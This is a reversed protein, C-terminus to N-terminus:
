EGAGDIRQNTEASLYITRTQATLELQEPTLLEWFLNSSVFRGGGAESYRGLWEWFPTTGLDDRLADLMRAGRLYVANIYERVSSFEYVSSDVPLGTYQTPVYTNVRTVWWWDRLEPYYEEYYILESYTALAEDLWPTLAQDTGVHAYWWQHAVEHVTIITLYSAANGAFSRYWDGGVFVIGSFEMGDPFDGQVVVLREYPYDGFLDSYMAVSRVATELAFAAGDVTVGSDLVRQADEFTYMEVTIGNESEASRVDFADSLSATFDRASQLVFHWQTMDPRSAIGPAAILTDVPANILTFTVDWDAVESIVQEGVVASEHTVWEGAQYPALTLLWHGLNLQRSSHGLYGVSGPIGQGIQPLVLDFQASIATTCLPELPEALQVTLRRGVLEYASAPAEGVNVSKLTFVEAARNAEVNFVVESLTGETLNVFQLTQEVALRRDGYNVTAEVHYRQTSTAEPTCVDEPIPTAEPEIQTPITQAVREVTPVPTTQIVFVRTATAPIVPASHETCAALCFFTLILFHKITMGQM